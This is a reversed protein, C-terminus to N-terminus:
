LTVLLNSGASGAVKKAAIGTSVTSIDLSLRGSFATQREPPQGSPHDKIHSLSVQLKVCANKSLSSPVGVDSLQRPAQM